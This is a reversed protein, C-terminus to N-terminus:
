SLGLGTLFSTITDLKSLFNKDNVLTGTMDPVTFYADPTQSFSTIKLVTEESGDASVTSVALPRYASLGQDYVLYYAKQSGDEQTSVFYYCDQGDLVAPEAATGELSPFLPLLSERPILNEMEDKLVTKLVSDYFGIFEGKTYNIIYYIDYIMGTSDYRNNVYCAVDQPTGSADQFVASSRTYYQRLTMDEYMGYSKTETKVAYTRQDSSILVGNEYTEVQATIAYNDCAASAPEVPIPETAGPEDPVPETTAPETLTAETTQQERLSELGVAMRLAARADATTIRNDQNVDALNAQPAEMTELQVAVRLIIRADATTVRGSSDVDGLYVAASSIVLSFVVIVALILAMCSGISRFSKM